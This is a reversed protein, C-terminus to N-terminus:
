RIAGLVSSLEVMPNMALSNVSQSATIQNLRAALAQSLNFGLMALAALSLCVTLSRLKLLRRAVPNTKMLASYM